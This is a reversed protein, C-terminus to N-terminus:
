AAVLEATVPDGIAAGEAWRAAAADCLALELRLEDPDFAEVRGVRSLSGSQTPLTLRLLQGPRCTFAECEDAVLSLRGANPAIVRCGAVLLSWVRRAAAESLALREVM